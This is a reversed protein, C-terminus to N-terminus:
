KYVGKALLIKFIGVLSEPLLGPFYEFTSNILYYDKDVRCISPDPHFGALIPNRYQGAQLPSQGIVDKGTYKFHDFIGVGNNSQKATAANIFVGFLCCLLSFSTKLQPNLIKM